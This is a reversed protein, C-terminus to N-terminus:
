ILRKCAAIWAGVERVAGHGGPRLTQYRAVSAAEEYADAVVIPVGVRSLCPVDNWDNGVYAVHQLPVGAERALQQLPETKDEVGYLCPIHIKQCRAAVVPNAEGSLVWYVVGVEDLLRLGRADSRSCRVTEEGHQNVYVANDTMVGDFDFVVLQVQAAASDPVRLPLLTM